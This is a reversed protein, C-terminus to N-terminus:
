IVATKVFYIWQKKIFTITFDSISHQIKYKIKRILILQIFNTTVYGILVYLYLKPYQYDTNLRQYTLLFILLLCTAIILRYTAYWMGLHYQNFEFINTKQTM